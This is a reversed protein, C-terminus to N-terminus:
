DWPNDRELTEALRVMGGLILGVVIAAIGWLTGLTIAALFLWAVIVGADM